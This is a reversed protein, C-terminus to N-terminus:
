RCRMVYYRAAAVHRCIARISYLFILSLFIFIADAAADFLLLM